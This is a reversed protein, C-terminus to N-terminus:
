PHLTSWSRGGDSSGVLADSLYAATSGGTQSLAWAHDPGAWAVAAGGPPDGRPMGTAARTSWSRGADVTRDLLTGDLSLVVFERPSIIAVAGPLRRAPPGAHGPVRQGLTWTTGGDHTVYVGFSLEHRAKDELFGPVAGDHDNFFTPLKSPPVVVMGPPPPLSRQQWTRGGDGTVYLDPGEPAGAVWGVAPTLFRVPRGLPVSRPTWTQGGDDTAYLDGAPRSGNSSLRMVVAFGHRADVFDVYAPLVFSEANVPGPTGLTSRRWSKAGDVTRFAALREPQGGLRPPPGSVIAGSAVVWGHREDLFFVGRISTAPLGSPTLPRWSRGGDATWALRETTLAWGATPTVLQAMRVPWTGLAGLGAPLQGAPRTPGHVRHSAALM